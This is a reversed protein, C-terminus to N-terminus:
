GHRVQDRHQIALGGVRDGGLPDLISLTDGHDGKGTIRDPPGLAADGDGPGPREAVVEVVLRYLVEGAGRGSRRGLFTIVMGPRPAHGFDAFRSLSCSPPSKHPACVEVVMATCDAWERGAHAAPLIDNFRLEAAHAATSVGIGLDELSLSPTRFRSGAPPSQRCPGPSTATHGRTGPSARI